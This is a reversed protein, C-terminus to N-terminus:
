KVDAGEFPLGTVDSYKRTDRILEYDVGSRSIYIESYTAEGLIDWPHVLEGNFAVIKDGITEQIDALEDWEDALAGDAYYTLTKKSHGNFAACEESSIQIGNLPAWTKEEVKKLIDAYNVSPKQKEETPIDISSKEVPSSFESIDPKSASFKAFAEQRAVSERSLEDLRARMDAMDEDYRKSYKKDVLKWAVLAGVGAGGAFILLERLM